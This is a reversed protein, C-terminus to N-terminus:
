IGKKLMDFLEENIFFKSRGIKISKLVGIKELENLYISATQRAIGLEEVLFDIKTYPHMFLIEVLDKSYIKPLESKIKEKSENMLRHIGNVLKITALSTQELGDLM